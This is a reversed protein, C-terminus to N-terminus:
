QKCIYISRIQKRVVKLSEILRKKNHTVFYNDKITQFNSFSEEMRYCAYIITAAKTKGCPTLHYHNKLITELDSYNKKCARSAFIFESNLLNLHEVLTDQDMSGRIVKNISKALAMASQISLNFLSQFRM